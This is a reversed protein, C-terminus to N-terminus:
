QPEQAALAARFRNLALTLALTAVIAAGGIVIALAKGIAMGGADIATSVTAVLTPGAGFGILTIIMIFLGSVRGRLPGPTVMQLAAAAVGLFTMAFFYHPIMAIGFVVLHGSLLAFIGSCAALPLTVQFLRLNAAYDGRAHRRDVWWGTTLQGPLGAFLVLLSMVLGIQLPSTGFTRDLITPTWAFTSNVIMSMSGFGVCLLTLLVWNERLFASLSDSVASDGLPRGTIRAPERFLLVLLALLPGPIGTLFFVLRWSHLDGLLPVAISEHQASWNIIVGGALLAIAGGVLGGMIFVSMALSLRRRPFSDAILSYAAPGLAAEGVGVLMRAIFLETFNTAIGCAASALGWLSVSIGILARRSMRDAIWGMAVGITTYFLAFSLGLLLSAEVDSIGLDRRIPDVLMTMIQRDVMAFVSYVFLVAVSIWAARPSPFAPTM